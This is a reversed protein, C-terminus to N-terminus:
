GSVFRPGERAPASAVTIECIVFNCKCINYGMPVIAVLAPTERNERPIVPDRPLM